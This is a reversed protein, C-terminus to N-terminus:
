SIGSTSMKGPLCSHACFNLQLSTSTAIQFVGTNSLAVRTCGYWPIRPMLFGSACTFKTNPVTVGARSKQFGELLGRSM